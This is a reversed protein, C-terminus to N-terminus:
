LNPFARGIKSEQYGSYLLNVKIKGVSNIMPNEIEKKSAKNPIANGM